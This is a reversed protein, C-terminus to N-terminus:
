NVHVCVGTDVHHSKSLCKINLIPAAVQDGQPPRDGVGVKFDVIEQLLDVVDTVDPAM